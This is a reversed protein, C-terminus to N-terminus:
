IPVLGAKNNIDISPLCLIEEKTFMNRLRHIRDIVLRNSFDEPMYYIRKLLGLVECLKPLSKEIEEYSEIVTDESNANKDASYLRDDQLASEAPRTYNNSVRIPISNYDVPIEKIYQFKISDLEKGERTRSVHLIHSIHVRTGDISDEIEPEDLSMQTERLLELLSERASRDNWTGSIYRLCKDVEEKSVLDKKM